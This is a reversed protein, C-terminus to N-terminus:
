HRQRVVVLSHAVMLFGCGNSVVKGSIITLELTVWMGETHLAQEASRHDLCSQRWGVLHFDLINGALPSPFFVAAPWRTFWFYILEGCFKMFRRWLIYKFGECSSYFGVQLFFGTHDFMGGEWGVGVEAGWKRQWRRQAPTIILMHTVQSGLQTWIREAQTVRSLGRQSEIRMHLIRLIVVECASTDKLHDVTWEYWTNPVADPVRYQRLLCYCNTSRGEWRENSRYWPSHWVSEWM